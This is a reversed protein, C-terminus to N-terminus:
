EYIEEDDEVTSEYSPPVPPATEVAGLLPDYRELYARLARLQNWELYISAHHPEVGDTISLGGRHLRAGTHRWQAAFTPEWLGPFRAAALLRMALEQDLTPIAALDGNICTYHRRYHPSYIGENFLEYSGPVMSPPAVCYCGEGQTESLVLLEHDEPSSSLLVYGPPADMRLYVHHGKGTEVIPLATAALALAADEARLLERWVALCAPHEFDVRVLGGSIAGGVIGIGAEGDAFWTVLEADTPRRECYVRWAAREDSAIWNSTQGTTTKLLQHSPLKDGRTIPIVSLGAALYRRAVDLISETM